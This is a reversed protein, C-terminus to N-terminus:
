SPAPRPPGTPRASLLFLSTGDGRLAGRIMKGDCAVQPQLAPGSLPYAPAEPPIATALHRNVADALARAGALGLCRAVTKPSPAALLGDRGCHRCGALELIEQGAHAIWATIAVLRTKGHLLALVVLALVAPLPHRLGRPDRPEPLGEFCDRISGGAADQLAAAKRLLLKRAEEAEARLREEGAKREREREAQGAAKRERQEAKKRRSEERLRRRRAKPEAKAAADRTIGEAEAILAQIDDGVTITCSQDRL